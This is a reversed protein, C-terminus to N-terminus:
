GTICFGTVSGASMGCTNSCCDGHETCSDGGLKCAGGQNNGPEPDIDSANPDCTGALCAKNCCDQDTTCTGMGAPICSTLACGEDVEGDCDNDVYDCVEEGPTCSEPCGFKVRLQTQDITNQRLSECAQGSIIISNSGPDYSVEPEAGTSYYTTQGSVTLEVWMNAGPDQPTMDLQFTCGIVQSSINQLTGLLSQTDSATYARMTGGSRAYDNLKSINAASGFGVAYTKVGATFLQKVEDLAGAHGSVACAIVNGSGDQFAETAEGDTILIVAKPRASDFPDNPLSLWSRLRVDQLATGTPTAGAPAVNAYAGQLQASSHEGLSIGQVSSCDLDRNSDSGPFYSLGLNAKPALQVSLEDLAATALAWRSQPRYNQRCGLYPDDGVSTSPTYDPEWCMSNSRDIVLQISPKLDQFTTSAEGCQPGSPTPACADGIGDFDSDRQPQNPLGPCNDCDDGVGDGDSDRPSNDPLTPCRDRIDPIGDSDSDQAPDYIELSSSECVDGVGDGDSDAQGPNSKAPCSDCADGVGDGDGDGQAPNPVLPCNDQANTVADSDQDGAPDLGAIFNANNNSASNQPQGNNDTGNNLTIVCGPDDDPCTQEAAPDSCAALSLSLSCALLLISTARM